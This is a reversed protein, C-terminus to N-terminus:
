RRIIVGVAAPKVDLREIRHGLAFPQGLKAAPYAAALYNHILFDLMRGQITVGSIEVFQVDVTATGGSSRIRANVTVPRAGELLHAMIWGPPKGQARRLKAFDILATATATGAGLQLKPNRVAGSAAEAAQERAYATLEQPTLAVRAGPRLRDHQILSLKRAAAQYDTSVSPLLPGALLALILFARTRM